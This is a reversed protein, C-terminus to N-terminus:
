LPATMCTQCSAHKKGRTVTKMQRFVTKMQRVATTMERTATNMQQTATKMQQTMERIQRTVTKPRRTSAATKMQRTSAVTKLQRTSATTKMHRTSAATKVQRTSAATKVQRTSTATKMQRTSAATKVQRTSAATKMQRTSTATKMQRTSAATKMQRTSAATKVQRTSAATKMQRTSAATKVQRTSAVTMMQRTSAATKVQRTSAATKMQRIQQTATKMQGIATVMQRIPRDSDEDTSDSDEDSSDRYMYQVRQVHRSWDIDEDCLFRAENFLKFPDSDDDSSDSDDDSSDSDEDSWDIGAGPRKCPCPFCSWGGSRYCKNCDDCHRDWEDVNVCVGCKECHRLSDCAQEATHDRCWSYRSQIPCDIIPCEVYGPVMDKVPLWIECCFLVTKKKGLRTRLDETKIKFINDMLCRDRAAAACDIGYEQLINFPNKCGACKCSDGCASGRKVCGCRTSGCNGKCGCKSVTPLSSKKKPQESLASVAKKREALVATRKSAM